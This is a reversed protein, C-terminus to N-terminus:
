AKKQPSALKNILLKNMLQKIFYVNLLTVSIASGALVRICPWNGIWGFGVECITTVSVLMAAILNLPLLIRLLWRVHSHISKQHIDNEDVNKKVPKVHAPDFRLSRGESWSHMISDIQALECEIQEITSDFQTSNIQQLGSVPNLSSKRSRDGLEGSTTPPYEPTDSENSSM